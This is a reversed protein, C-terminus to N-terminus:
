LMQILHGTFIRVNEFIDEAEQETYTEKPHMVENRWVLKVNYLHAVSAALQKTSEAKQDLTKIAKNLEDLINQWNKEHTLTVGAKDGLKQVCMEMVRMLHFVCATWRELCLCYAAEQIDEVAKPLKQSVPEAFPFQSGFLKSHKSAVQLMLMQSLEDELRQRLDSAMRSFESPSLNKENKFADVMREGQRTSLTLPLKACQDVLKELWEGLSPVLEQITKPNQDSGESTAAPGINVTHTGGAQPLEIIFSRPTIFGEPHRFGKMSEMLGLMHGIHVLANAKIKLMDWVSMLRFTSARAPIM